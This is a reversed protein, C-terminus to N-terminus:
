RHEGGLSLQPLRGFARNVVERRDRDTTHIPTNRASLSGTGFWGGEPASQGPKAAPYTSKELDPM